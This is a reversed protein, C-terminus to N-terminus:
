PRCSRCPTRGQAVADDRAISVTQKDAVVSCDARHFKTSSSTMTVFTKPEAAVAARVTPTLDAAVAQRRRTPEVVHPPGHRHRIAGTLSDAVSAAGDVVLGAPRAVGRTAVGVVAVVLGATLGNAGGVVGAVVDAAAEGATRVVAGAAGASVAGVARVGQGMASPLRAAMAELHQGPTAGEGSTKQRKRRGLFALLGAGAGILLEEVSWSRLVIPSRRGSHRLEVPSDSPPDDV